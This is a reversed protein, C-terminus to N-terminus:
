GSDTAFLVMSNNGGINVIMYDGDINYGGSSVSSFCLPVPIGTYDFNNGFSTLCPLVDNINIAGFLMQRQWQTMVQVENLVQHVQIQFCYEVWAVIGWVVQLIEIVISKTIM